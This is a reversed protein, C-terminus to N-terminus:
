ATPTNQPFFIRLFFEENEMGVGRSSCMLLPTFFSLLYRKVQENLGELEMETGAVMDPDDAFRVDSVLQGRVLAGEMDELAEIMWVEACISFLLILSPM